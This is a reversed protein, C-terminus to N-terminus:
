LLSEQAHKKSLYALLRANREEPTLLVCTSCKEADDSVTYYRCCGGRARFTECHDVNNNDTYTLTIYETKATRMRSCDAKIFAWGQTKGREEDSLAKGVYLFLAACSDAVLNWQAGRSLRTQAHVAEIIHQMHAELSTRLWERLADSNPMVMADPHGADPDNPLAAFRPSLFRVEVRDAQGSEGGEYWTYTVFRVAMNQPSLDPVRSEALYMSIASGFVDWSYKNILLSGQSLRELNPHYMTQRALLTSITPSSAHLLEEVPIWGDEVSGIDVICNEDRVRIRELSVALPHTATIIMLGRVDGPFPLKITPSTQSTSNSCQQLRNANVVVCLM